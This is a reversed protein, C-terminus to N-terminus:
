IQLLHKLGSRCRPPVGLLNVELAPRPHGYWQFHANLPQGLRPKPADASFGLVAHGAAPRCPLSCTPSWGKCAGCWRTHLPMQCIESRYKQLGMPVLPNISKQTTHVLRGLGMLPCSFQNCANLGASARVRVLQQERKRGPNDLDTGESAEKCPRCPGGSHGRVAQAVFLLGSPQIDQVSRGFWECCLFTAERHAKRM